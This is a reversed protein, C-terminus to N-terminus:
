SLSFGLELDRRYELEPNRLIRSDLQDAGDGGNEVEFMEEGLMQREIQKPTLYENSYDHIVGCSRVTRPWRPLARGGM